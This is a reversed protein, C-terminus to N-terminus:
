RRRRPLSAQGSASQRGNPASEWKECSLSTPPATCCTRCKECPERQQRTLCLDAIQKNADVCPSPNSDIRSGPAVRVKPKPNTEVKTKSWVRLMGKLMKTRPSPNNIPLPLRYASGSHGNTQSCAMAVEALMSQFRCTSREPSPCNIARIANLVRHCIFALMLLVVPGGRGGFLAALMKNHWNWMVPTWFDSDPGFNGDSGASGCGTGNQLRVVIRRRRRSRRHQRLFLISQQVHFHEIAVRGAALHFLHLWNPELVSHPAGFVLHSERM